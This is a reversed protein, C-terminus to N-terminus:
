RPIQLKQGIKLKDSKLNNAKMIKSSTVNKGFKAAIGGLTDGQRVVYTSTTSAKATTKAKKKNVVPQQEKQVEQAIVQEVKAEPKSNNTSDIAALEEPLSENEDELAEDKEETQPPTAPLHLVLRQGVKPIASKLKNWKAINDKDINYKSAILALTEGIRVKHYITRQEEPMHSEETSDVQSDVDLETSDTPQVPETSQAAQASRRNFYQALIGGSSGPSSTEQQSAADESSSGNGQNEAFYTQETKAPKSVV